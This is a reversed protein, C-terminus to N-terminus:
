EEIKTQEKEQEKQEEFKIKQNLELYDPLEKVSSVGLHKLLDLSAEYVSMRADKESAKKTILGRILLSRLIYICNVGRIVEIEARSIPGRYLIIALTELAAKSLDEQLESTVLKQVIAANEPASVMQASDSKLIIRIGRSGEQYNDNLSNILEIMSGKDNMNLVTALKKFKVPKGAVFLLSELRSKLIKEEM